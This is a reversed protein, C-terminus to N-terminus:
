KKLKLAKPVVPAGRGDAFSTATSTFTNLYDTGQNAANLKAQDVKTGFAANVVGGLVKAGAGIAAGWPGPIMGGIDGITNLVNGAGSEYGGGILGGVIGGVASGLGSVSGEGLSKGLDTTNFKLDGLGEKFGGGLSYLNAKKRKRVM